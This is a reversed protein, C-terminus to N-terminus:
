SLPPISPFKPLKPVLDTVPDLVELREVEGCAVLTYSVPNVPLATATSFDHQVERISMTGAQLAYRAGLPNAASLTGNGDEDVEWEGVTQEAPLPNTGDLICPNNNTASSTAGYFFSVYRSDPNLGTATAVVREADITASGTVGSDNKELLTVDTSGAEAAPLAAASEEGAPAAGDEQGADEEDPVEDAAADDTADEAPADQAAASDRVVDAGTVPGTDASDSDADSDADADADADSADPGTGLASGLLTGAGDVPAPPPPDDDALAVAPGAVLLAAALPGAAAFRVPGRPAAHRPRGPRSAPRLRHRGM